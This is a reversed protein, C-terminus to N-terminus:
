TGGLVVTLTGGATLATDKALTGAATSTLDLPGVVQIQANSFQAARNAASLGVNLTPTTGTMAQFAVIVEATVTRVTFGAPIAFTTGNYTASGGTFDSENIFVTLTKENGSPAAAEGINAQEGTKRTGFHVPLGDSNTWFTGM